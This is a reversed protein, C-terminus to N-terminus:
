HYAARSEAIKDGALGRLGDDESRQTCDSHQNQSDGVRRHDSGEHADGRQDGDHACKYAGDHARDHIKKLYGEQNHEFKRQASIGMAQAFDEQHIRYPVPLGDIRYPRASYIRDYRKTAFLIDGDQSNGTDIVFSEPTDIGFYQATLLCLQENTVIGELRVHSQKVIHTSPADGIPLYWQSNREDYYLGAKGSAGTLSLHAKTVM